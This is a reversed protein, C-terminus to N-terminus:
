PKMLRNRRWNSIPPNETESLNTASSQTFARYALWAVIKLEEETANPHAEPKYHKAVFHTDFDGSRFAPHKLAFTGFSLTSEVGTIKYEQIARLMRAIAEERDKGWCILKSIMPDYYVPVNMGALYGNDVRVGPGAPLQYTKLTGPNPYFHNLPDEAYVRLEIAHGKIKIDQQNISLRKGQAIHIQEKVLDIGTILETVPHEVQLRTNMELFYFNHQEDLIFEVTGAGYYNCAKAVLVACEGIQNRLDEDLVFCPAEEIVKQHRRQISCEREFLHVIHGHQDGLVQVEVHKPSDIYRELFVDGNGFYSKAESMALQAQEEFDQLQYVVRMGKGGGGAAAKILVPFGLEEAIVLGEQLTSIAKESGPVLPINFKQVAQKATLKNGMLEISSPSPGILVIGNEQLEKAFDANESLFGYGPHVADAGVRKCAELIANTNLYSQDSPAAGIHIAQDAYQVHLSDRDADSYVAVTQIGMEKASRMIRIAIEGRNAVLIKKM